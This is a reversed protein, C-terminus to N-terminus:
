GIKPFPPAKLHSPDLEPKDYAALSALHRDADDLFLERTLGTAIRDVGFKLQSIGASNALSPMAGFTYSFINKLFPASGAAKETFQFHCSLYPYCSLSPNKEDDPPQYRDSWLAIKDAFRSLEPRAKLDVVLGTGVILFDFEAVHRSTQIRVRDHELGVTEIPSALHLSFNAFRACRDFTDQPPPQNMEFITKMFRWKRADDLDGFHRLFGAFEAWRNPNVTPLKHRRAFLDVSAAGGELAMAANDFASAGAGVVAIRKGALAAFNIPDATHAYHGRPLEKAIIEPVAWRGNGEMGTALVVNRAFLSQDSGNIAAHVALLGDEIPEIDKVEAGSTVPVDVTRRVWHLYDQWLDRTIKDITSWSESGFRAEWWARPSLSAIGLDPGTVYKPTRLTHMRAFTKWPGEFGQPNRDLVRINTVCERILRFAISVGSQGGGVIVADYVPVGRHTRPPVWARAPYGVCELDFRVRQELELLAMGHMTSPM